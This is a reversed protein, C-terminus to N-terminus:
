CMSFFGFDNSNEGCYQCYLEETEANYAFVRRNDLSKFEPLDLWAIDFARERRRGQNTADDVEERMELELGDYTEENGDDDDDEDDAVGFGKERRMEPFQLSLMVM